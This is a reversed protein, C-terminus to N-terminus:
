GQTQWPAQGQCMLKFMEEQARRENQEAASLADESAKGNAFRM